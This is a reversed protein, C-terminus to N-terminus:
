LGNVPANVIFMDFVSLAAYYKNGNPSSKLAKRQYQKFLTESYLHMLGRQSLQEIVINKM